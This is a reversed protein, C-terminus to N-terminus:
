MQPLVAALIGRLESRQSESLAAISLINFNGSKYNLVIVSKGERWGDFLSWNLKGEFGATNQISISTSTIIVTFQGQMLPDRNYTSLLGGGKSNANKLMFFWVAGLLLFPGVNFLIAKAISSDSSRSDATNRSDSVPAASQNPNDPSVVPSDVRPRRPTESRQVIGWLLVLCVLIFLWFMITKALGSFLTNKQSKLRFAQNYEDKTVRYSFEM